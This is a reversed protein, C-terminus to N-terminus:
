ATTTKLGHRYSTFPVRIEFRAGIGFEGNEVIDVGVMKTMEKALFLGLGTNKGFGKRFIKEKNEKVIGIGNDEYIFIASDDTKLFSIRIQTVRQGHRESNDIFVNFIIQFMFIDVFIEIDKPIDNIFLLNPYEKMLKSAVENLNHWDGRSGGVQHITRSLNLLRLHKNYSQDMKDCLDNRRERDDEDRILGNYGIESLLLNKEDHILIRNLVELANLVKESSDISNKRAVADKITYILEDMVDGDKKILYFSNNNAEKYILGLDIATFIIFPINGLLGGKLFNLLEIGNMKPLLYDSVIVDPRNEKTFQIAEESSVVTAVRFEGTKKLTKEVLDTIGEEDDVFLVLPLVM